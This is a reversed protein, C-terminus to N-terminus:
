QQRWMCQLQCVYPLQTTCDEVQWQGSCGETADDVCVKICQKSGSLPEYENGTIGWNTFKKDGVVFYSIMKVCNLAAISSTSVLNVSLMILSMTPNMDM